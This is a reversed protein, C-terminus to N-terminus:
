PTGPAKWRLLWREVRSVGLNLGLGTLALVFLVSYTGQLEFTSSYQNILLGLGMRSAIIESTVVGLLSYIISLRVGALISPIAYRFLVKTFLHLRSTGLAKSLRIVDEDVSRVGARANYIMIFVVVSFALAVKATTTIGFWLIFVPAFAIRPMSNLADLVPSVVAEIRPTLALLMGVPIGVLVALVAAILTADLTSAFASWFARTRVLQWGFDWVQAPSRSVLRNVLQYEYVLEWVGVLAGLFILQWFRLALRSHGLARVRGGDDEADSHPASSDLVIMRACGEATSICLCDDRRRRSSM